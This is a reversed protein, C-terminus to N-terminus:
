VTRPKLKRASEVTNLFKKMVDLCLHPEDMLKCHGARPIMVLPWCTPIRNVIAYSCEETMTDYQGAMVITPVNIQSLRDNINWTELVGGIMFECNGQMKSYITLDVGEFCQLFADPPPLQRCIFHKGIENDLYHYLPSSFDKEEIVKNLLKQTYSTLQSHRDRKQTSIYLQPDSLAGDLLIGYLGLPQRVSWEQVIITGWSSGYLYYEKLQFHNLIAELEELYYEITFLWPAEKEPDTLRSSQGCGAVLFFFLVHFSVL